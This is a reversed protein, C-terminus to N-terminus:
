ISLELEGNKYIMCEGDKLKYYPINCRNAKTYDIQNICRICNEDYHVIVEMDEKISGLGKSIHYQNLDEPKDENCYVFNKCQVMAGASYGITIGKYNRLIKTLGLRTILKMINEPDGGTFYVIDSKEIKMKIFKKNDKFRNVVYINESEIGYDRFPRILEKYHTGHEDNFISDFSDKTLWRYDYSFPLVVVRMRPKIINKLDDFLEYRNFDNTSLLINYKDKM